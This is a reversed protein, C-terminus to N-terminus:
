NNNFQQKAKKFDEYLRYLEELNSEFINYNKKKVEDEAFESWFAMKEVGLTGANGKLTHLINLIEEHNSESILRKCWNLQIGCENDFEELAESVMEKGGFEILKDLVKYNLTQRNKVELIKKEINQEVETNETWKKITKILNEPVIPKSIYDDLGAELYKNKDGKLSYATMAVIPTNRNLETKRILKSATVGDMKPMQIDMLIVQYNKKEALELAKEGGDAQKVVCGAKRLMESALQLNVNNDDVLLVKPKNKLSIKIKEEVLSVSPSTAITEFTFWFTTGKDNNPLVGIKGGLMKSLKKSIFLGLGTGKFSKSTSGDLQTFSKFLKKSDELSIGIGNDVVTAKLKLTGNKKKKLCNLSVTVSGGDPTFKLANSILNSYIQIIKVEDALINKPVKKGLKFKLEIGNREAEVGYLTKLKNLLSSTEIISNKLEMKGAEIKSMDLLDNLVNMLIESSNKLSVFHKRQKEDLASDELLHIMGMIGNLPTKIEHSMNALFKEKVKLSREALEKSYQLQENTRKLETIDRATGEIYLPKDGDKIIRINCICPIVKGTKHIIGTEFNRVSGYKILDKLLTKIKINYIYFNTVNKGKLDSEKYGMIDKVSPSLMTINGRFDTRFYLDQFSEFINRFKEESKVLKIRSETKETIDYALGSIAHIQAGTGYVPNLFLEKWEIGHETDMRVVISVSKGKLVKGYQRNWFAKNKAKKIEGKSEYYIYESDNFLLFYEFYNQNYSLLNYESDVAWIILNGSELIANSFANKQREEQLERELMAVKQNLLKTDSKM